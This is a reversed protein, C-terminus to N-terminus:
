EPSQRLRLSIDKALGDVAHELDERFLQVGEDEAYTKLPRAESSSPVLTEFPASLFNQNAKQANRDSHVLYNQWILDGTKSDFLRVRVAVELARKGMSTERLCIRYPTIQLSCPPDSIETDSNTSTSCLTKVAEVLKKDFEFENCERALAAEHPAWKKRIARGMTADVATHVIGAAALLTLGALDRSLDSRQYHCDDFDLFLLGPVTLPVAALIAPTEGVGKIAFSSAPSSEINVQGPSFRFESVDYPKAVSSVIPGFESLAENGIERAADSEDVM